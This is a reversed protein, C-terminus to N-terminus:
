ATRANQLNCPIRVAFTTGKGCESEVTITGRHAQVVSHAIALGLGTGSGVSKTTFFPEFIHDRIEPAIGKGTDAVEICYVGETVSTRIMISGDGDMADIANTLLNMVVQNLIAPSCELVDEPGYEKIVNIRDDLRSGLIRLVSDICEAVSIQKFEGEDLRSFTRLNLVIDRIRGLGERMGTLRARAKDLKGGVPSPRGIEAAVEALLKDVTTENAIMFALPNNIEHAIGAVLQGLSAMKASHVLQVQAVQLRRYGEEADAQARRLRDNAERLQVNSDQYGRLLMEFSALNEALFDAAAGIQMQLDDPPAEAFIRRLADHYLGVMDLVGMGESIADRGIQYAEHLARENQPEALHEKLVAAYHELSPGDGVTM